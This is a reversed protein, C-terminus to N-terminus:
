YTSKSLSKILSNPQKFSITGKTSKFCDSIFETTWLQKNHVKKFNIFPLYTLPLFIQRHDTSTIKSNRSRKILQQFAALRAIEYKSNIVQDLYPDHEYEISFNLRSELKSHAKNIDALTYDSALFWDFIEKRTRLYSSLDSSIMFARYFISYPLNRKMHTPHASNFSLFSNCATGKRYTRTQIRKHENLLIEVDLYQTNKDSITYTIKICNDIENMFNLLNILIEKPGHWILFGDDFYRCYMQIFHKYSPHNVFVAEWDLLYTNAITGGAPCGMAIGHIQNFYKSQFTFFNNQLVWQCINYYISAPLYYNFSAKERIKEYYNCIINHVRHCADKQPISTYLNKIDYTVLFLPFKTCEHLDKTKTNLMDLFHFTDKPIHDYIHSKFLIEQLIADLFFAARETIWGIGSVIPRFPRGQKHTKPLFYIRPIRIMDFQFNIPKIAFYISKKNPIHTEFIQNAITKYFQKKINRLSRMFEGLTIEKYSIKDDLHENAKFNYETKDLICLKGSKDTKKIIIKNNKQLLNLFEISKYHQILANNKLNNIKISKSFYIRLDTFIGDQMRNTYIIIRQAVDKNKFKYGNPERINEGIYNNSKTLKIPINFLDRKEKDSPNEYRYLIDLLKDRINQIELKFLKSFHKQKIPWLTFKLGLNLTNYLNDEITKNIVLSSYNDFKDPLPTASKRNRGKSRFLFHNSNTEKKFYNLRKLFNNEEKRINNNKTEEKLKTSFLNKIPQSGISSISNSLLTFHTNKHDYYNILDGLDNPLTKCQRINMGDPTLTNLREIYLAEKLRRIHDDIIDSEIIASMCHKINCSKTNFHETIKDLQNSPTKNNKIDRYHEGMRERLTRKTQGIYKISCHSCIIIYIINNTNCNSYYNFFKNNEQKILNLQFLSNLDCFLLNKCVQCNSHNKTTYNSTRLLNLIM